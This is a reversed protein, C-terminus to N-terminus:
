RPKENFFKSMKQQPTRLPPTAVTHIIVIWQELPRELNGQRQPQFVIRKSASVTEKNMTLKVLHHGGAEM